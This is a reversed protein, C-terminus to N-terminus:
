GPDDTNKISFRHIKRPSLPCSLTCLPPRTYGWFLPSTVPPLQCFASTIKRPISPQVVRDHRQRRIRGREGFFDGKIQPSNRPADHPPTAYFYYYNLYSIRTIEPSHREPHPCRPHVPLRQVMSLLFPPSFLPRDPSFSSARTTSTTSRRFPRRYRTFNPTQQPSFFLNPAVTSISVRGQEGPPAGVLDLLGHNV